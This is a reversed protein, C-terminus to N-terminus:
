HLHKLLWLNNNSNGFLICIKDKKFFLVNKDNNSLTSQETNTYPFLQLQLIFWPELNLILTADLLSIFSSQTNTHTNRVRVEARVVTLSHPSLPPQIPSPLHGSSFPAHAEKRPMSPLFTHSEEGPRCVVGPAVISAPLPFDHTSAAM